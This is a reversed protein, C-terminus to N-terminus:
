IQQLRLPDVEGRHIAAIVCYGQKVFADECFGWLLQRQQELSLEEEREDSYNEFYPQFM